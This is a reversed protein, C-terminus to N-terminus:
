SASGGLNTALNWMRERIQRSNQLTAIGTGTIRFLRKRRGGRQRTAGGMRSELFGKEQLRYMTTHVAGLTLLRGTQSNLENLVSIGYAEDNLMAVALLVLEEFAGLPTSAM